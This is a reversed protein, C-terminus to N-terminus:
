CVVFYFFISNSKIQQQKSTIQKSTSIKKQLQSCNHNIQNRHEVCFQKLCHPCVIKQICKKSCLSCQFSYISTTTKIQKTQQNIQNMQHFCDHDRLCKECYNKKCTNCLIPCYDVLLCKSCKKGIDLIQQSSKSM